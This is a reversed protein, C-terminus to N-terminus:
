TCRDGKANMEIHQLKTAKIVARSSEVHGHVLGRHGGVIEFPEVHDVEWNMENSASFVNENAAFINHMHVLCHTLMRGFKRREGTKLALTVNIERIADIVMQGVVDKGVARL